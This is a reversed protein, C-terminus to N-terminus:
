VRVVFIRDVMGRGIMMRTGKILIVCPGGRANAVVEFKMGPTLGMEALRHQLRMGGRIDVLKVTDGQSTMGLSLPPNQENQNGFGAMM